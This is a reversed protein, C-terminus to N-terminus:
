LVGLEFDTGCLIGSREIAVKADVRSQKDESSIIIVPMAKDV